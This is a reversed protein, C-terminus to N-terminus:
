VHPNSRRWQILASIQNFRTYYEEKLYALVTPLVLKLCPGGTKLIFGIQHVNYVPISSDKYALPIEITLSMTVSNADTDFVVNTIFGRSIAQFKPVDNQYITGNIGDIEQFVSKVM